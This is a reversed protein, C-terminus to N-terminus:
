RKGLYTAVDGANDMFCVEVLMSPIAGNVCTIDSRTVPGRDPLGLSAVVHERIIRSLTDSGAAKGQVGVMGLTGSGGGADFHISVIADCGLSVAKPMRKWFALGYKEGNIVKVDTDALLKEVRHALDHSFEAETHGNGTAGPDVVNNGNSNWGHGPNLYLKFAYTPTFTFLQGASDSAAKLKLKGSSADLRKGAKKSTITFAASKLDVKVSWKSAKAKSQSQIATKSGKASVYYCSSANQLRYASGAKLLRFKQSKDNKAKALGIKAGNSRSGGTVNVRKGSAVNKVFYTRDAALPDATKLKFTQAKVSKAAKLKLAPAGKKGTAAIALKSGASKFMVGGRVKVPEWLQANSKAKKFQKCSAGSKVTGSVGLFMRSNLNRIRYYGTESDWVVTWMQAWSADDGSAGVVKAGAKKSEGKVSVAYGAKSASGLNYLGDDITRRALKAKREAEAKAEAEAEVAAKAEEADEASAEGAAEEQAPDAAVLDDAHAVPAAILLAAVVLMALVAGIMKGSKANVM